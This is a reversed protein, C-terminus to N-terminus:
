KTEKAKAQNLVAHLKQNTHTEERSFNTVNNNTRKLGAMESSVQGTRCFETVAHLGNCPVIRRCGSQMIIKNM